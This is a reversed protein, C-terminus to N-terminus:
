CTRLTCALGDDSLQEAASKLAEPNQDPLQDADEAPLLHMPPQSVPNRLREMRAVFRTLRQPGLTIEGGM